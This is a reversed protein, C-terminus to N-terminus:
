RASLKAFGRASITVAPQGHKAGNLGATLSAPRKAPQWDDWDRHWRLFYVLVTVM